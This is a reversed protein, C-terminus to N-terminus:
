LNRRRRGLCRNRKCNKITKKKNSLPKEITVWHSTLIVEIEMHQEKEPEIVSKLQLKLNNKKISSPKEIAVLHSTLMVSIEM